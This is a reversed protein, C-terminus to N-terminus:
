KYGDELLIFFDNLIKYGKEKSIDDYGMASALSADIVFNSAISSGINMINEAQAPNQYTLEQIEKIVRRIYNDSWNLKDKFFLKTLGHAKDYADQIDLNNHFTSEYQYTVINFYGTVVLFCILKQESDLQTGYLLQKYYDNHQLISMMSNHTYDYRKRANGNFANSINDFLGM